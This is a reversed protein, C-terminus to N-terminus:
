IITLSYSLSLSNDPTLYIIDNLTARTILIDNSADKYGLGIESVLRNATVTSEPIFVLFRVKKADTYDRSVNSELYRNYLKRDNLSPATNVDGIFLKNIGKADTGLTRLIHNFGDNTVLNKITHESKLKGKEFVKIEIIGEINFGDKLNM